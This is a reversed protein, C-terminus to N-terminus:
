KKQSEVKAPCRHCAYAIPQRDLYGVLAPGRCTPCLTLSTHRWTVGALEARDAPWISLPSPLAMSKEPLHIRDIGDQAPRRHLCHLLRLRLPRPLGPGHAAGPLGLM